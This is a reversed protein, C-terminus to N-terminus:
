KVEVGETGISSVIKAPVGWGRSSSNIDSTVLSKAGILCDDGIKVDQLVTSNFGLFSREGIKARGGVLSQAAIFCHSGVYSEHCLIASTWLVCNDGVTVWPEIHVGPFIIANEGIRASSDVQAHKSIVSAIPAGFSRAREYMRERAAMSKYGIALVIEIDAGWVGEAVKEVAAVPLGLFEDSVKFERDVCFGVVVYGCDNEALRKVLKSFGGVGYIAIRKM